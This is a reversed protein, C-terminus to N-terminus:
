FTKDEEGQPPLLGILGAQNWSYMTSTDDSKHGVPTGPESKGGSKKDQSLFVSCSGSKM